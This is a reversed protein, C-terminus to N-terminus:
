VYMGGIFPLHLTLKIFDLDSFNDGLSKKYYKETAEFLGSDIIFKNLAGQVQAKAGLEDIKNWYLDKRLKTVTEIYQAQAQKISSKLAPNNYLDVHGSWDRFPYSFNMYVATHNSSYSGYKPFLKELFSRNKSSLKNWAQKRDFQKLTTAAAEFVHKGEQMFYIERKLQEELCAPNKHCNRIEIAMRNQKRAVDPRFVSGGIFKHSDIQTAINGVMDETIEEGKAMKELLQKLKNHRNTNMPGLWPHAFSKGTLSEPNEVFRKYGSAMKKMTDLDNAINFYGLNADVMKKLVDDSLEHSTGTAGLTENFAFFAERPASSTVQMSGIGLKQNIIKIKDAIEKVRDSPPLIIEFNGSDYIFSDPLAKALAEDDTIKVLEGEGRYSTFIDDKKNKMIDLRESHSLELWQQKNLGTVEEKPMFAKLLLESDAGTYESEFGFQIHKEAGARTDSGYGKPFILKNIPEDILENCVEDAFSYPIFLLLFIFFKIM